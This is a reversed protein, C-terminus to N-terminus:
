YKTSSIDINYHPKMCLPIGDGALAEGWGGERGGGGWAYDLFLQLRSQLVYNHNFNLHKLLSFDGRWCFITYSVQQWAQGYAHAM